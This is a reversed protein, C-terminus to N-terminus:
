RHWGEAPLPTTAPWDGGQGGLGSPSGALYDVVKWDDNWRLIVTTPSITVREKGTAPDPRVDAWLVIVAKDGVGNTATPQVGVARAGGRLDKEGAPPASPANAGVKISPATAGFILKAAAEGGIFGPDVLVGLVRWPDGLSPKIWRVGVVANLAALEAGTQTNRYGFPVGGETLARPGDGTGSPPLKWGQGRDLAAGNTSPAAGPSGSGPWPLPPASAVASLTGGAADSQLTPSAGPGQGRRGLLFSGVVALVVLLAITSWVWPQLGRGRSPRQGYFESM